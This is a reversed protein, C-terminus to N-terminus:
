LGRYHHKYRSVQCIRVEEEIQDICEFLDTASQNRIKRRSCCLKRFLAVVRSSSQTTSTPTQPQDSNISYGDELVTAESVEGYSQCQDEHVPYTSSFESASYISSM